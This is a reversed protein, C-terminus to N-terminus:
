RSEVEQLYIDGNSVQNLIEDYHRNGTFPPVFSRNKDVLVEIVGDCLVANEFLMKSEKEVM